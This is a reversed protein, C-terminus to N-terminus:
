LIIKVISVVAFCQMGKGLGFSTMKDGTTFTLGIRGKEIGLIKSLSEKIRDSHPELKPRAAEISISVNNIQFNGEKLNDLTVRIYERSDIIGQRYMPNAFYGLSREGIASSIANFLSHLIIDGDSDADFGNENPIEYGGIVLKKKKKSFAHSDQGIGFRFDNNNEEMMIREAMRLDDKTTIKINEYSCNVIRVKNGLAEVLAADDTAKTKNKQANQFAKMFLGYEICQPTQMQYVNSRDITRDVFGNDVKKITDKLPFACVAAGHKKAENICEVIEAEKVLPNSGNQVVIIDNEKGKCAKLGNFVSDQREKGGETIEAIKSFNFKNRIGNMKSIDEKRTVVIIKGVEKCDQFKKLTHFIMPKGNLSLFVKNEDSNMRRGKGAAVIITINM